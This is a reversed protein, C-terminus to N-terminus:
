PAPAIQDLALDICAVIRDRVSLYFAREKGIPDPIEPNAADDLAGLLRVKGRLAPQDAVYLLAYVIRAVIFGIALADIRGQPAQALHAVIVAAAFPPFAEFGNQHAWYARRRWGSLQELWIRPTSNNFGPAAKALAVTFYPLMAAVLICWYAITM